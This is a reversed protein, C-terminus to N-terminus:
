GRGLRTDPRFLFSEGIKIKRFDKHAPNILYNSENRTVASPVELIASPGEKIWEDGLIQTEAVPQPSDWGKPLDKVGPKKVLSEEFVVPIVSYRGFFVAIDETHVLLELTALSLSGATYVM